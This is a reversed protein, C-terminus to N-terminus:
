AGLRQIRARVDAASRIVNSQPAADARGGAPVGNVAARNVSTQKRAAEAEAVERDFAVDVYVDSAAADFKYVNPRLKTAVAEKIGRATMEPKVDVGHAKATAELELRQKVESAADERAQKLADAHKDAEAKLSDREAQISDARTKEAAIAADARTKEAALAETARELARAVEPSAQYDISDVRVSVLKVDPMTDQEEIIVSADAADQRDLRLKANGARGRHVVALHNVRLNRQIADYRKGDVEGPTEDLDLSYGLSLEKRAGLRKPSHIVIDALLDGDRREGETLVAGVIADANDAHVKGPHGDTVPVGRLSALHEVHFVEEPPRYEYQTSGDARRYEFIGSRTLIPKDRIWGEPTIVAKEMSIFDFRMM